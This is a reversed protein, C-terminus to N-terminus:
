REVHDLHVLRSLDLGETLALNLEAEYPQRDVAVAEMRNGEVVLHDDRPDRLLM